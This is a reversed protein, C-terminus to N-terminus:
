TCTCCREGDIECAARFRSASGQPASVAQSSGADAFSVMRLLTMTFVPSSMRALHCTAAGLLTVQYMVQVRGADLQRAMAEVRAADPEDEAPPPGAQALAVRHLLSALEELAPTM